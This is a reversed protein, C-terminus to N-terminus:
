RLLWMRNSRYDFVTVFRYLAPVGANGLETPDDFAGASMADLEIPVDHLVVRGLRLSRAFAIYGFIAGGIGDGTRMPGIARYRQVLRHARVAPAMVDLASGSGTDIGIPGAIGDLAGDIEPTCGAIRMPIPRAGAGFFGTRRTLDVRRHVFDFRVAFRQLVECGIAGDVGPWHTGWDLVSFPQDRLIASGIRLQRVTTYRTTVMGAGVGGSSDRGILTLGLRRAVAPEIFNSAGTDFLVHLMPGGNIRVPVIPVIDRQRMPVSATGVLQVDNPPPPPAFAGRPVSALVDVARVREHMAGYRDATDVRFPLVVGAVRRYDGFRVVGRDVGADDEYSSVRGTARDITVDIPGSLGPYQLRVKMSGAPARRTLVLPREPGRRGYFHATALSELRADANGEILPMGTADSSWARRGDFGDGRSLAGAVVRDEWRGTALDYVTTETGLVGAQVIDLRLRVYRVRPDIARIVRM